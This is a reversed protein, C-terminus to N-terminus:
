HVNIVPPHITVDNDHDHFYKAALLVTLTILVGVLFYHNKNEGQPPSNKEFYNMQNGKSDFKEYFSQTPILL